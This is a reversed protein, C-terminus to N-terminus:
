KIGGTLGRRAKQETKFNMLVKKEQASEVCMEM